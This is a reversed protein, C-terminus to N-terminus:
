HSGRNCVHKRAETRQVGETPCEDGEQQLVQFQIRECIRGLDNSERGKESNSDGVLLACREEACFICM